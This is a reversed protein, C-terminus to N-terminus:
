GRVATWSATVREGVQYYEVMDMFSDVTQMLTSTFTLMGSMEPNIAPSCGLPSVECASLKDRYGQLQVILDSDMFTTVSVYNILYWTLVGYTAWDIINGALDKFYEDM